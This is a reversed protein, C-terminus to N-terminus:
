RSPVAPRAGSRSTLSTLTAGATGAADSVGQTLAAGDITFSTPASAFVVLWPGTGTVTAGSLAAELDGAAVDFAFPGVTTGDLVLSFEGGTASGASLDFTSSAIQIASAAVFPPMPPFDTSYARDVMANGHFAPVDVGGGGGITVVPTTYGSGGADITIATVAGSATITASASAGTGAGTIQVDAATYGSGPDTITIGTLAGNAGVSAEATAGSGDGVIAVAVDAMTLPSNAWNPYPGFYHPVQTPDTPSTPASVAAPADPASPKVTATAPAGTMLALVFATVLAALKRTM